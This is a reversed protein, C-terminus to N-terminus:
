ESGCIVRASGPTATGTTRSTRRAPCPPCARKRPQAALACLGPGPAFCDRRAHLRQDDGLSAMVEVEEEGIRFVRRRHCPHAFLLHSIHGLPDSLVMFLAMRLLNRSPSLSRLHGTPSCAIGTNNSSPHSLRSPQHLRPHARMMPADLFACVNQWLASELPGGVRQQVHLHQM